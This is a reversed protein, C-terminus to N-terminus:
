KLAETESVSFGTMKPDLRYKVLLKGITQEAPERFTKIANGVWSLPKAMGLGVASGAGGILIDDQYNAKDEDLFYDAAKNGAYHGLGGGVVYGAAGAGPIPSAVGAGGLLLEGGVQGAMQLGPRVAGRTQARVDDWTEPPVMDKDVVANARTTAVNEPTMSANRSFVSSGPDPPASIKQDIDAYYDTSKVSQGKKSNYENIVETITEDSEGNDVM